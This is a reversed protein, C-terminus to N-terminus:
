KLVDRIKSIALKPNKSEEFAELIAYKTIKAWSIPYGLGRMSTSHYTWFEKKAMKWIYGALWKHYKEIVIKKRFELEKKNLYIPGYELLIQIYAVSGKGMSRVAESIQHDHIREYSLVEHVFGFDCDKLTKYCASTDAYDLSHPYFNENKRVYESRYLLSTPTGFTGGGELLGKRCIERGSILEVDIPLTNWKIVDRSQQYCGVIGATPHSEAFGVMKDLYDSTIWDDASVVKCYTSNKSILNFAINHNEIVGVFKDNNVIRIRSDSEAFRLVISNTSDTSCNNVIIYEFNDYHQNVVSKICENIYKDGNFVPTLISVLPNKSM